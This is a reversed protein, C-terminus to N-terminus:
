RWAGAIDPRVRVIPSPPRGPGDRLPDIVVIYGREELADLADRLKAVRPFTGRLANFAERVTFRDLRGREIWGWVLRASAITPDAGMMDLAALSHRCIVAMMELADTMTEATIAAEWPIGHAHKIGHLVGALRAAAGPATGAWDTFHELERGPQMQSEIAHAFAHHESRAEDSLRLLHPSEDGHEDIAPEWDLMARLGAWYADLVADPVPNSELLRFGLPSVPLLYLFRGLLGRGRFGPKTALGRLVDPQPSLGISLRPSKLFVSPRSKRDVREADGSHAKLVLDLNPIGNSYRGQLLDFVGGE